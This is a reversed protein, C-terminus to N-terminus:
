YLKIWEDSPQAINTVKCVCGKHQPRVTLVWVPILYLKKIYKPAERIFALYLNNIECM